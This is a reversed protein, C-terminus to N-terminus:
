HGDSTKFRLASATKPLIVGGLEHIRAYVISKNGFGAQLSETLIGGRNIVPQATISSRLNGSRVNLVQGTLKSEKIYATTALGWNHLVNALQSVLTTGVGRVKGIAKAAQAMNLTATVQM